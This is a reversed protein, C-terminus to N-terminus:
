ITGPTIGTRGGDVTLVAGSVFSAQPSALFEVVAATEDASGVRGLPTFSALREEWDPRLKDGPAAELLAKMEKTGCRAVYNVRIGQQGFDHAMVHTLAVLGGKSASYAPLWPNGQIGDITGINVISGHTSAALLPAFAQALVVPGTLNVRLIREWLDIDIRSVTSMDTAFQCNVLTDVHDVGPPLRAPLDRLTELDNLPAAVAVATAGRSEVEHAVEKVLTEDEDLVLVLSGETAARLACAKGLEVGGGAVVTVRPAANVATGGEAM